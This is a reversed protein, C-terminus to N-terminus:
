GGSREHQHGLRVAVYVVAGIVIIWFVPVLTMWFWGWGSMHDVYV